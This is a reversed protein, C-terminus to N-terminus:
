RGMWKSVPLDITMHDLFSERCHRPGKRRQARGRALAFPKKRVVQNIYIRDDGAVLANEQSEASM